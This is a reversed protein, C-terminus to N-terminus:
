EVERKEIQTNKQLMPKPLLDFGVGLSYAMEFLRDISFQSVRLNKLLSVQAQTIGLESAAENQKLEKVLSYIYIMMHTKVNAKYFGVENGGLEVINILNKTTKLRANDISTVNGNAM